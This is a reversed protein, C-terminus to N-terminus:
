EFPDVETRYTKKLESTTGVKPKNGKEDLTPDLKTKEDSMEQSDRVTVAGNPYFENLYFPSPNFGQFSVRADDSLGECEAVLKRLFGLNSNYDIKFSHEFITLERKRVENREVQMM